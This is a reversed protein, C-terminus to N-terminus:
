QAATTANGLHRRATTQVTYLKELNRRVEDEQGYAQALGRPAEVSGMGGEGVIPQGQGPLSSSVTTM